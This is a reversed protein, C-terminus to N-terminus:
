SDFSSISSSVIIREFRNPLEELGKIDSMLDDHYEEALEISEFENKIYNTLEDIDLKSENSFQIQYKDM